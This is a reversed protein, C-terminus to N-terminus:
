RLRRRNKNASQMPLNAVVVEKQYHLVLVSFEISFQSQHLTISSLSKKALTQTKEKGKRKRKRKKETQFKQLQSQSSSKRQYFPSLVVYNVM